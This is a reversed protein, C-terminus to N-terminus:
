SGTSLNWYVKIMCVTGQHKGRDKPLRSRHGLAVRSYITCSYMKQWTTAWLARIYGEISINKKLFIEDMQRCEIVRPQWWSTSLWERNNVADYVLSVPSLPNQSWLANHLSGPPSAVTLGEWGHHKHVHCSLGLHEVTCVCGSPYGVLIYKSKLGVCCSLFRM